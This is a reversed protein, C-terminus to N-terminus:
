LKVWVEHARTSGLAAPGGDPNPHKLGINIAGVVDRELIRGSVKAVRLRFKLAKVKKVRKVAVRIVMLTYSKVKSRTLPDTSSSGKESVKAIHVPNEELLKVLTSVSWQHIRHRLKANKDREMDEKAKWDLNGIVVVAKNEIALKEIFREAKRLTDM